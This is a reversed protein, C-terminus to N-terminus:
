KVEEGDPDFVQFGCGDSEWSVEPLAEAKETAMQKLLKAPLDLALVEGVDISVKVTQRREVFFDVLM